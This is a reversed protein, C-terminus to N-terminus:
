ATGVTIFCFQKCSAVNLLAVDVNSTKASPQRGRPWRRPRLRLPRSRRRGGTALQVDAENSSGLYDHFKGSLKIVNYHYYM